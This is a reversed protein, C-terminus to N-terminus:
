HVWILLQLDVGPLVHLAVSSHVEVLDGRVHSSEESLSLGVASPRQRDTQWDRVQTYKHIKILTITLKYHM